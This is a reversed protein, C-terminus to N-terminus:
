ARSWFLWWPREDSSSAPSPLAHAMRSVTAQSQALLTELRDKSQRADMLADELRENDKLAAQLRVELSSDGTTGPTDPELAAALAERLWEQKSKPSEEIARIISDHMAPQVYVAIRKSQGNPM